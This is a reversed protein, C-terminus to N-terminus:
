LENEIYKGANKPGVGGKGRLDSTYNNNNNGQLAFPHELSHLGEQFGPLHTQCGTLVDKETNTLHKTVCPNPEERGVSCVRYSDEDSESIDRIDTIVM